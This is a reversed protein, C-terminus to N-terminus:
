WLPWARQASALLLYVYFHSWSYGHGPRRALSSPVIPLNLQRNFMYCFYGGFMLFEGQAFNVINVARFILVMGMSVMAYIFGMAVGSVLLQLNM